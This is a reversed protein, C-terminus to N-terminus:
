AALRLRPLYGFYFRLFLALTSLAHVAVTAMAFGSMGFRVPLAFLTFVLVASFLLNIALFEARNGIGIWCLVALSYINVIVFYFCLVTLVESLGAYKESFILAVLSEAGFFVLVALGIVPATSLTLYSAVNKKFMNVDGNKLAVSIDVRWVRDAQGQFITIATVIQWGASYIGLSELGLKGELILRSFGGYAFTSLAIIVLPLNNALVNKLDKIGVLRFRQFWRRNNRLQYFISVMTTTLLVGFVVEVGGIGSYILAYAIAVYVSREILFLYSYYINRSTLEYVFATNLAAPLLAILGFSFTADVFFYFLLPAGCLLVIILRLSFIVQVIDHVESKAAYSVAATSDTAFTTLISIVSGVILIQSYVGFEAPGFHNALYITLSYSLFAGVISNKSLVSLQGLSSLYKNM